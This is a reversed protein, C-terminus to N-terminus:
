KVEAFLLASVFKRYHGAIKEAEDTGNIIRRAGVADAKTGDFYTGLRKKTFWGEIMGVFLIIVAFEPRMVLDPTKTFDVTDDILGLERLRTTAKAYNYDWTLQVYGRGWFGTPGYKRGKGRGYEEIPLMTYATEHFTTALAYALFKLSGQPYMTEWATLIFEMGKVQDPTLKGKPFMPRVAAFFRERDYKM